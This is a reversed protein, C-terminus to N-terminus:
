DDNRKGLAVMNFRIDKPDRSMFGQLVKVADHLLTAQSSKGHNIPMSKRGDLEYIHGDVCVFANFHLNANVEHSVDSKAETAVAQHEVEIDDNDELLKAREDPSAKLTTALFKAFFKSNDLQLQKANNLIAHVLGVTGCANGITQKTFYVNSSCVQGNKEVAAAEEGKHKESAESIPFLCLVAYVPQPVMDLLEPSLIEHFQFHPSVGLRWIYENMLDPNSELPLWHKRRRKVSAPHNIAPNFEKALTSAGMSAPHEDRKEEAKKEAEKEAIKPQKNRPENCIECLTRAAVNNFTCSSCNWSSDM